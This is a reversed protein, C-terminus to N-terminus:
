GNNIKKIQNEFMNIFEEEKGAPIEGGAAVSHGGGEGGLKAAIDCIIKKLNINQERTRSSIKIKANETNAFGVVTSIGEKCNAFLSMSCVTGIIKDDIENKGIIYLTNDMKKTFEKNSKVLEITKILKRKYDDSLNKAIQMGRKQDGICLMMATGPYESRGCANLITAFEKLDNVCVDKLNSLYVNGLLNDKPNEGAIGSRKILIAEVLKKKESETLNSFKRFENNEDQIPIELESLFQVTGSENGSIGPIFPETTYELAKHIPRSTRGYINLDQKVTILNNKVAEDLIEKNMGIFGNKEQMDGIAGTIALYSLDKKILKKSFLYAVGSGSIETSGNIGFLHPNIHLLNEHEFNVKPEHHDLILVKKNKSLLHEKISELQGSGLDSFIYLEYNGQAIEKVKDETLQKVISIHFDCGMAQLTLSVVAGSCLGDADLHTICRIVKDKDCIQKFKESVKSIHDEFEKNM